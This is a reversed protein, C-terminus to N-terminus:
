ISLLQTAQSLGCCSHPPVLTYFWGAESLLTVIVVALYDEKIRGLDVKCIGLKTPRSLHYKVKGLSLDSTDSIGHYVKWAGAAEGM